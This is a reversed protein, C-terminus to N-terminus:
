QFLRFLGSCYEFMGSRFFVLKCKKICLLFSYISTKSLDASNIVSYISNRNKGGCKELTICLYNCEDDSVQEYKGYQEVCRCESGYKIAVYKYNQQRCAFICQEPTLLEDDIIFMEQDHKDIQDVFCGLYQSVGIFLM